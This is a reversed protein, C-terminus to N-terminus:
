YDSFGKKAYPTKIKSKRFMGFDAAPKNLGSSPKKSIEAPSHGQSTRVEIDDPSTADNKLNSRSFKIKNGETENNKLEPVPDLVVTKPCCCLSSAFALVFLQFSGLVISIVGYNVFNKDAWEKLDDYCAGNPKGLNVDSFMLLEQSTCLGSCEFKKEIWTILPIYKIQKKTFYKKKYDESLINCDTSNVTYGLNSYIWDILENQEEATYTEITECPDCNLLNKASGRYFGTINVDLKEADLSCPCYIMCFAESGHMSVNNAKPFNDICTAEDKLYDDSVSRLYILVGGFCILLVGVVINFIVFGGLLLKKQKWSGIFGVFSLFILFAGCCIVVYGAYTFDLIQVFPSAQVLYGVWILVSGIGLIVVCSIYIAWKLTKASCCM